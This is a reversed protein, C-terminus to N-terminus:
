PKQPSTSAQSHLKWIQEKGNKIATKLGEETYFPINRFKERMDNLWAVVQNYDYSRCRYRKGHVYIEGVWRYGYVRQAGAGRVRRLSSRNGDQSGGSKRGHNHPEKYITGQRVM